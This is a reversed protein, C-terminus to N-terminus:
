KFFSTLIMLNWDLRRYLMSSLQGFGFNFDWWCDAAFSPLVRYFFFVFSFHIVKPRRRTGATSTSRRRHRRRPGRRRGRRRGRRPRPSASASAAAAASSATTTTTTAAWRGRTCTSASTTRVAPVCRNWFGLFPVTMLFFVDDFEFGCNWLPFGILTRDFHISTSKQHVAVRLHCPRWLFFFSILLGLDASWLSFRPNKKTFLMWQIPGLNWILQDLPSDLTKKLYVADVTLPGFGLDASGFSLRPNPYVADVTLSGFELDASWLSFRPNKKTFLMWQLPGLNWILQDM